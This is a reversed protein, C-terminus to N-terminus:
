LQVEDAPVFAAYEVCPTGDADVGPIWAVLLLQVGGYEVVDGLKRGKALLWPKLEDPILIVREPDGEGALELTTLWFKKAGPVWNIQITTALDRPQDATNDEMVTWRALDMITPIGPQPVIAVAEWQVHTAMEEGDPLRHILVEHGLAQNGDFGQVEYVEGRRQWDNDKGIWTRGFVVRFLTGKPPAVLHPGKLTCGPARPVHCNCWGSGYPDWKEREGFETEGRVKREERVRKRRVRHEEIVARTEEEGAEGGIWADEVTADKLERTWKEIAKKLTM